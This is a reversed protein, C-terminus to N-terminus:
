NQILLTLDNVALKRVGQLRCEELEVKIFYFRKSKNKPSGHLTSPIYYSCMGNVIWKKGTQSRVM